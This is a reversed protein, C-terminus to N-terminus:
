MKLKVDVINEKYKGLRIRKIPPSQNEGDEPQEAPIDAYRQESLVEFSMTDNNSHLSIDTSTTRPAKNHPISIMVVDESPASQLDMLSVEDSDTFFQFPRSEGLTTGDEDCYTLFYERGDSLKPLVRNTFTVKGKRWKVTIGEEELPSTKGAWVWTFITEGVECLAIYHKNSAKISSPIHYVVELDRCCSLFPRIEVFQVGNM